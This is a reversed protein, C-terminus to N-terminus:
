TEAVPPNLLQVTHEEVVDLGTVGERDVEVKRCRYLRAVILKANGQYRQNSPPCCWAFAVWMCLDGNVHRRWTNHTSGSYAEGRLATSPRSGFEQIGKGKQSLKTRESM